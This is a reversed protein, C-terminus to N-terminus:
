HFIQKWKLYVPRSRGIFKLADDASLDFIKEKTRRDFGALPPSIRGVSITPLELRMRIIHM